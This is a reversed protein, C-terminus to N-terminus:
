ATCNLPLYADAILVDALRQSTFPSLRSDPFPSKSTSFPCSLTAALPGTPPRPHFPLFIRLLLRADPLKAYTSPLRPPPSALALPLSHALFIVLNAPASLSGTKNRTARFGCGSSFLTRLYLRRADAHTAAMICWLFNVAGYGTDHSGETGVVVILRRRRTRWGWGRGRWPALSTYNDYDLADRAPLWRSNASAPGPGPNKANLSAFRV